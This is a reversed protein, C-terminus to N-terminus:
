MFCMKDHVYEGIQTNDFDPFDDFSPVTRDKQTFKVNADLICREDYVRVLKHMSWSGVICCVIAVALIIITLYKWCYGIHKSDREVLKHYSM